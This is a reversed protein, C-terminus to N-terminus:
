VERNTPLTLHTYSVPVAGAMTFIRLLLGKKMSERAAVYYLNLKPNRLRRSDNLTEIMTSYMAIVDTCVTQHNAVFLVGADPLNRLQDAGIVQLEHQNLVRRRCYHRLGQLVKKKQWLPQGFVNVKAM